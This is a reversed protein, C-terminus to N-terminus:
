SENGLYLVHRALAFPRRASEPQLHDSRSRNATKEATGRTMWLSSGLPASTAQGCRKKYSNCDANMQPQEESRVGVARPISGAKAAVAVVPVVRVEGV